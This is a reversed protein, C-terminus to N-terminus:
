VRFDRHASKFAAVLDDRHIMFFGGRMQTAKLEVTAGQGGGGALSRVVDAEREPLVMEKQHLQTIPNVGAPIDFGQSASALSGFSLAAASMAAGFAPAGMDIPWPAGAFSATGAAGAIAAQESIQGVALAKGMVRQMIMQALWKAAIESLTQIVAQGIATFLGHVTQSLTKTGSLFGNIVRAFGSQMTSFMGTWNSMQERTSDASIQGMRLQHQRELEEIENKIRAFEVPNLTPDVSNLREQAAQLAIQSRAAEFQRERELMQEKTIIGLDLELQSHQRALAIAGDFAQGLETLELERLTRRQDRANREIEQIKRTADEAQKSEAGYRQVVLDLEKRALDAKRQFNQEAADQELKIQALRQEFADKQIGLTAETIKGQIAFADKSGKLVIAAKAQWFELEREKSFEHFTGEAANREAQSQKLANLQAEFASMLSKKNDPDEKITKGGGGTSAAATPNAFLNYLKDTTKEADAVLTDMTRAGIAGMNAWTTKAAAVAGEFDGSLVKVIVEGFGSGLEMLQMFAAKGTEWLIEIAFTLGHFIAVLGGIAGKIIIVAAPGVDSFWQGLQTLVPMLADGIAKKIALMVDGVDNMSTRYAKTAEVNEQGVVLGLAQQKKKAEELVDNNLKLLGTVEEAGKGFVKQVAINRDVGEKYGNLIGITDLMLDKMPRLEGASNRTQLGMDRLSDENTRLTKALKAAASTFTDADSYIDGLAVSLTSAETANVGLVKGLKTAEMTFNKSAEVSDKFVKGGALVATFAGLMGMVKGFPAQLGGFLGGVQGDTQSLLNQVNKMAAAFPGDDATIVYRLTKDTM